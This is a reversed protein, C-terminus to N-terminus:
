LHKVDGLSHLTALASWHIQGELHTKTEFISLQLIFM